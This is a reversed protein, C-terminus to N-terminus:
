DLKTRGLIAVALGHRVGPVPRHRSVPFPPQEGGPVDEALLVLYLRVPLKELFETHLNM